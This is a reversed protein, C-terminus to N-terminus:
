RSFIDFTRWRTHDSTFSMPQGVRLEGSRVRFMRSGPRGNFNEWAHTVYDFGDRSGMYLYRSGDYVMSLMMRHQLDERTSTHTSCGTLSAVIAISCLILRM